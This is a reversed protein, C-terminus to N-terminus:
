VQSWSTAKGDRELYNKVVGSKPCHKDRKAGGELRLVHRRLHRLEEELHEAPQLQRDDPAPLADQGVWWGVQEGHGPEGLLVQQGVGVELNKNQKKRRRLGLRLTSTVWPPSPLRVSAIWCLTTTTPSGSVVSWRGFMSLASLNPYSSIYKLYVTMKVFHVPQAVPDLLVPVRQRSISEKCSNGLSQSVWYHPLIHFLHSSTKLM